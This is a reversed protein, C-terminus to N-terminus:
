LPEAGTVILESAVLWSVAEVMTARSADPFKAAPVTVAESVPCAESSQARAPHVIDPPMASAAKM